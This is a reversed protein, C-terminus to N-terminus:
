LVFVEERETPNELNVGPVKDWVEYKDM